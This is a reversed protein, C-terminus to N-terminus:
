HRGYKRAAAVLAHINEPPTTPPLACGPSLILGGGAGLIEINKRAEEAVMDPTGLAMVGSPDIVGLIACKGRSADKITPLDCKYDLELVAAGTAAMDYAIRTANGCIHYALPLHHAKLREALQRAYPWEFERYIRPSSVDPGALSEGISTMRAGAEGQAVAYRYVVELSFQLLQHLKAHNDPDTLAMLFQDVSLLMSALSFPGQDARGMIYAQNGIERTVIRTAKLLEPLPHVSYPDPVTLKDIDDLSNLVPGTLVPASDKLYEVQCGCAQALAATGNELIVMDHGFERWARLMGEAMAEGNQFYEPFPLGTGLAAMMFNHLTVPVRDPIGGDLVTQVREVSTISNSM